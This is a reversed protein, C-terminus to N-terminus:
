TDVTLTLVVSLLLKSFSSSTYLRTLTNIYIIAHNCSSSVSYTQSSINMSHWHCVHMGNAYRGVRVAVAHTERRLEM